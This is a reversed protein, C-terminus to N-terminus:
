GAGSRDARLTVLSLAVGLAGFGLVTQSIPWVWPNRRPLSAIQDLASEIQSM